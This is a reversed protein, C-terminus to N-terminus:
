RRIVLGAFYERDAGSTLAMHRGFDLQINRSVHFVPGLNLASEWRNTRVDHRSTGEVFAALWPTFGYDFTLSPALDLFHEEADRDYSLSTEWQASLHADQTFTFTVPLLVGYEFGGSGQRGGAPIRTYGIVAAAWRGASCSDNGLFNHKIRLAVDGFGRSTAAPEGADAWQKEVVFPDVFVQVETRDTLGTRLAFANLRLARTRPLSGTKSNILRLADTEFQWHGPDVTIPSETVGPRDASLPRLLRAPAPKRWSYPQEPRKLTDPTATPSHLALALLSTLFM